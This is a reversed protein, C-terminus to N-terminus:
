LGLSYLLRINFLQMVSCYDCATASAAIGVCFLAITPQQFEGMWEIVM